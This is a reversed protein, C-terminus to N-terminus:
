FPFFLVFMYDLVSIIALFYLLTHILNNASLMDQFGCLM